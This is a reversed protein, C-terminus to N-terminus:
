QGEDRPRWKFVRGDAVSIGLGEYWYDDDLQRVVSVLVSGDNLEVDVPVGYPCPRIYHWKGTM